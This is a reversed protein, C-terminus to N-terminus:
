STHSVYTWYLWGIMMVVVMAMVMVVGDDGNDDDYTRGICVGWGLMIVAGAPAPRLM